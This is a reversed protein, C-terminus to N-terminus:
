VTGIVLSERAAEVVASTITQLATIEVVRAIGVRVAGVETAPAEASTGRETSPFCPRLRGM